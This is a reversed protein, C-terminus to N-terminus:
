VLTGPFFFSARKGVVWGGGGLFSFHFYTVFDFAFFLQAADLHIQVHPKKNNKEFQCNVCLRTSATSRHKEEQGISLSLSLSFGSTDCIVEALM